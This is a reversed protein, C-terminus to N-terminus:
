STQVLGVYRLIADFNTPLNLMDLRATVCLKPWPLIRETNLSAHGKGLRWLTAYKRTRNTSARVTM